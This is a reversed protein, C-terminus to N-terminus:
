AKRPSRVSPFRELGQLIRTGEEESGIEVIAAPIRLGEFLFSFAEDLKRYLTGDALPDLSILVRDFKKILNCAQEFDFLSWKMNVPVAYAAFAISKVKPLDYTAWQGSFIPIFGKERIRHVMKELLDVRGLGLLWDGYRGGFLIYPNEAPRLSSLTRDLHSPDFAIRDIEKQTLVESYPAPPFFRNSTWLGQKKLKQILQPAFLNKRITSIIVSEFRGIPKGLLMASQGAGLHALGVLNKDETLNKLERFSALHLPSPLDFCGIGLQYAGKMLSLIEQIGASTSRKVSFIARPLRKGELIFTPVRM